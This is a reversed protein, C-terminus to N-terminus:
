QSQFLSNSQHSLVAHRGAHGDSPFTHSRRLQGTWRIVAMVSVSSSTWFFRETSRFVSSKTWLRKLKYCNAFSPYPTPTAHPLHPTTYPCFTTQLNTSLHILQESSAVLFSKKCLSPQLCYILPWELCLLIIFIANRLWFTILIFSSYHVFFICMKRSCASVLLIYGEGLVPSKLRPSRSSLSLSLLFTLSFSFHCSEGQSPPSPPLLFACAYWQTCTENVYFHETSCIVLRVSTWLLPLTTFNYMWEHLHLALLLAYLNTPFLLNPSLFFMCVVGTCHYFTYRYYM